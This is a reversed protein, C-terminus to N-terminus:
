RHHMYCHAKFRETASGSIMSAIFDYQLGYQDSSIGVRRKQDYVLAALVPVCQSSDLLRIDMLRLQIDLLSIHRVTYRLTTTDATEKQQINRLLNHTPLIGSMLLM